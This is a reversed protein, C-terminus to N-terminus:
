RGAPEVRLHWEGAPLEVTVVEGAPAVRAGEFAARGDADFLSVAPAGRWPAQLSLALPEDTRVGAAMPAAVDLGMAQLDLTAASAGALTASFDNRAPDADGGPRLRLGTMTYPGVQDPAAPGGAEAVAAAPEDAIAHSTGEFEARGNPDAPQLGSLWYASDFALGLDTAGAGVENVAREFAMDRVYTVHRPTRQRTRGDLYRAGEAWQDLVPFTFHEYGPFAYFRHPYGLEVLREHQRVGGGFPALEDGGAYYMALPVHRVNALLRRVHQDRPRGGDAAVYCPSGGDEIPVPVRDCGPADLGTWAGQTVPAAVALAGAFRDPYLVSFLYAGWGGMSHGALFRRDVDAPFAAEADAMVELVDAHGRGVYWTSRGRGRPSVIISDRANGLQRFVGPTLAGAAHATGGRWHLWYTIPLRQGDPLGDAADPLYVGYHQLDGERGHPEALGPTTSRFIREHYGAGPVFRQTTGAELAAVDVDHLFDDISGDALALAQREDFWTRVPEDLRFAVNHVASRLGTDAFAGGGPDLLGTAATLRLRGGSALLDRDVAAETANVFGSADTAVAGAPLETVDGDTLDAVWGRDGALLMAVDAQSTTLGSGFGVDREGGGRGTDALVLVGTQRLADRQATRALLWVRDNDVAVRLETLDAAGAYDARGYQGSVADLPPPPDFGAYGAFDATAGAEARETEPITSELPALLERRASATGDDAGYADFLHDTYVLEGASYTLTGGFGTPEGAWGALDADVARKGPPAIPDAPVLQGSGRPTAPGFLGPDFPPNEGGDRLGDDVADVAETLSAPAMGAALLALAAGALLAPLARWRATGGLKAM